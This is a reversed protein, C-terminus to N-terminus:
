IRLQVTDPDMEDYMDQDEHDDDDSDDSDEDEDSYPDYDEDEFKDEDYDVGAIWTSDYLVQGTRNTIKLGEPMGDQEAIHHVMKIIAPTIPIPTVSYQATILERPIEIRDEIIPVPARRTMKGKLTTVDPGFIKEEIDVDETTVPNNKIANM